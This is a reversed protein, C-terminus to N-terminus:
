VIQKEISPVKKTKEQAILHTSFLLDIFIQLVSCLIWPIKNSQFTGLDATVIFSFITCYLSALVLAFLIQVGFERKCYFIQLLNNM